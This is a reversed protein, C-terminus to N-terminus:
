RAHGVHEAERALMEVADCAPRDVALALHAMHVSLNQASSRTHPGASAAPGFRPLGTVCASIAAHSMWAYGSPLPKGGPLPVMACPAGIKACFHAIHWPSAPLPPMLAASTPAGGILLM